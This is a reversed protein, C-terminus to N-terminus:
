EKTCVAQDAMPVEGPPCPNNGSREQVCGGSGESYIEGNDFDCDAAPSTTSGTTTTSSTTTSTTSSTPTTTSTTPAAATSSEEQVTTETVTTEEDDGCASFALAMAALVALPILRRITM